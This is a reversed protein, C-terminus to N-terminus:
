NGASWWVHVNRTTSNSNNRVQVQFSTTTPSGILVAAVPTINPNTDPGYDGDAGASVTVIPATAFATPFTITQIQRTNQPVAYVSHGRVTGSIPVGSVNIKGPGSRQIYTDGAQGIYLAANNDQGGVLFNEAVAMTSPGFRYLKNDLNVGDGWFTAGDAQVYYRYQTDGSLWANYIGFALGALGGSGPPLLILGGNVALQNVNWRQLQVDQAANGPGWQLVGNANASWRLSSDGPQWIGLYATAGNCYLSGDTQLGAAARRYLNTDGASGLLIGGHGNVYGLVAQNAPDGQRAVIDQGSSFQGDTKLQNASARYLNTDPATSGGQGWRHTGDANTLFRPNVEAQFRIQHAVRAAVDFGSQDLGILGATYLTSVMGGVQLFGDTKLTNAASRYLNTDWANDPGFQIASAPGGLYGLIVGQNTAGAFARVYQAGYIQGDIKLDSATHIVGNASSDFASGSGFQVGQAIVFGAASLAPYGNNAGKEVKQQLANM